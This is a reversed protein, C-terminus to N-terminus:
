GQKKHSPLFIGSTKQEGRSPTESATLEGGYLVPHVFLLFSSMNLPLSLFYHIVPVASAAETPAGTM